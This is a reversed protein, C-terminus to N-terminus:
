SGREGDEVRQYFNMMTSALPVSRWRYREHFGPLELLERESVYLYGRALNKEPLPLRSFRGETFLIM